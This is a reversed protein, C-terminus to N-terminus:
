PLPLQIQESARDIQLIRQGGETQITAQAGSWERTLFITVLSLEGEGPAQITITSLGDQAPSVEPMIESSVPLLLMEAPNPASRLSFRSGAQHEFSLPVHWFLAADQSRGQPGNAQDYVVVPGRPYFYINRRHTWGHWNEIVTQSSDLDAGTIFSEVRAYFPPDQAWPGGIGTLTYLVAGMGSREVTLGNLNERPVRKDRFFRRGSPLWTFSEGSM